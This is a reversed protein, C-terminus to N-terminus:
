LKIIHQWESRALLAPVPESAKELFETRSVDEDARPRSVTNRILEFWQYCCLNREHTALFNLRGKQGMQRALNLDAALTTLASVVGEADGPAVAFGCGARRITDASECHVPGVFLAPRGAAMIGYLKGPVVIGTMEPRMSILHVDALSLSRYLEQRPFYDLLRVNSLGERDRAARVEEARPGAGVFLFVLDDRDRLRRAAELFEDFSHALGLNGSYMAM